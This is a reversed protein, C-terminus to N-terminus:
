NWGQARLRCFLLSLYVVGLDCHIALRDVRGLDKVRTEAFIAVGAQLQLGLELGENKVESEVVVEDVPKRM